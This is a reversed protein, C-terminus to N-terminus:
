INPVQARQTRSLRLIETTFGTWAASLLLVASAARVVLRLNCLGALPNLSEYTKKLPGKLTWSEYPNRVSGKLDLPGLLDLLANTQAIQMVPCSSARAVVGQLSWPGLVRM